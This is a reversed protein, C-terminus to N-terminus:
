LRPSYQDLDLLEGAYSLFEAIDPVGGTVTWWLIKLAFLHVVWWLNLDRWRGQHMSESHLVVYLQRTGETISLLATTVTPIFTFDTRQLIM